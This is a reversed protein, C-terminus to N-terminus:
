NVEAGEDEDQTDPFLRDLLETDSLKMVSKLEENKHVIENSEKVLEAKVRRPTERPVVEKVGLTLEVDGQKYHTVGQARLLKVLAKIERANM